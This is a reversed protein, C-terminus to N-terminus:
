IKKNLKPYIKTGSNLTKPDFIDFNYINKYIKKMLTINIYLLKM